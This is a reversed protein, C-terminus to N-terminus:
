VIEPPKEFYSAFKKKYDILNTCYAELDLSLNKALPYTKIGLAKYISRMFINSISDSGRLWPTSHALIWRIEAVSDNINKLDEQTLKKGVYKPVFNDYKTFVLNIASNVYKSSGHNIENFPTIRSLSINSYPNLLPEKGVEKLRDSYCRYKAITFPTYLESDSGVSLWGERDTRLIGSNHKKSLELVKSNAVRLKSSIFKLVNEVQTHKKIMNVATDAIDIVESAWDRDKGYGRIRVFFDEKKFKLIDKGINKEFSICPRFKNQKSCYGYYNQFKYGTENIIM